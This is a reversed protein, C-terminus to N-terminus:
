QKYKQNCLNNIKNYKDKIYNNIIEDVYERQLKKDKFGCDSCESEFFFVQM